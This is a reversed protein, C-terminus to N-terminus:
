KSQVWEIMKTAAMKDTEYYSISMRLETVDIDEKTLYHNLDPFIDIDILKNNFSKLINTSNIPNVFKDKSGIIYYMPININKYTTEYNKLILDIMAPMNAYHFTNYRRRTYGIKKADKFIRRITKFKLKSDGSQIAEKNKALQVHLYDIVDIKEQVTDYKLENDFTNVGTIVQHKLFAGHKEIPTAWQVMFDLEAGKELAGISVLGGESHGIIGIKKSTNKRLYTIISVLDNVKNSIGFFATNFEGNSKGTGRDDFRFVGITNKLLLETLKFHNNRTDIGSGPVIIVITEFDKKPSILTGAITVNEESSNILFEQSDYNTVQQIEREYKFIEQSNVTSFTTLILVALIKKM